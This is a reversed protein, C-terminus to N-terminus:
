NNGELCGFLRRDGTPEHTRGDVYSFDVSMKHAVQMRAGIACRPKLVCKVVGAGIQYPEVSISFPPPIFKQPKAPPLSRFLVEPTSLNCAPYADHPTQGRLPSQDSRHSFRWRLARSLGQIPSQHGGCLVDVGGPLEVVVVPPTISVVRCMPISKCRLLNVQQM